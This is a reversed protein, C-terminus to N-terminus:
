RLRSARSYAGRESPMAKRVVDPRWIPPEDDWPNPSPLDNARQRAYERGPMDEAQGVLNKFTLLDEEPGVYDADARPSREAIEAIDCQPRACTISALDATDAASM